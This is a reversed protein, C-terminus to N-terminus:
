KTFKFYAQQQVGLGNVTLTKCSNVYSTPSKWNFQYYGGGLNQLSSAGAAYEEVVDTGLVGTTCDRSTTTVTVSQLNTVPNGSADKLQWKLPVAQGAKMSNLYSPNDVPSSFGIFTYTNVNYTCTTTASHGVKDKATFTVSKTGTLSTDVSGSLQSTADVGSESGDSASIPGVTQMGSNVLFPGASPCNGFTPSDTDVKVQGTTASSVNGAKDTATGSYNNPGSTNFTQAGSYGAIGSPGVDTSGGYSVTVTDKLFGGSNAVPSLPNTTATPANPADLDVSIGNVNTTTASRGAQDTVTGEHSQNAGNGFTHNAPCAGQALGSGPQADDCTYHATPAGTSANYWGSAAPNAPNLSAQITPNTLDIKFAASDLSDTNGANDAIVGSNIKVASGEATGSGKTFSAQTTDALGSTTDSATFKNLVTSIYWGNQGDPTRANGSTDVSGVSTISPKVTDVKYTQSVAASSCGGTSDFAKAWVTTTGQGLTPATTSYTGNQANSYKVVAGSTTSSASVTPITKYWGNTGDPNYTFTPDQPNTCPPNVTLNGTGSSAGYTTADGAFSATVTYPSNAVTFTSPLSVNANAVGGAGTQATATPCAVLPTGPDNDCVGAKPNIAFSVTKGSMDDTGSSLTASLSASGPNGATGTGSVNTISTAKKVNVTFNAKYDFTRIETNGGQTATIQSPGNITITTSGAGVPTVTLTKGGSVGCDVFDPLTSPSVTAVQANGTAATVGSLKNQANLNCNNQGDGSTPEIYVTTTGNGSGMTLTMTELTTDVTSDLNNTITDALVVVPIALVVACTM